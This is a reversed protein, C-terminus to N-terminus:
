HGSPTDHDHDDIDTDWGLGIHRVHHSDHPHLNGTTSWRLADQLQDNLGDGDADMTNPLLAPTPDPDHDDPIDAPPPEDGGTAASPVLPQPPPAPPEALPEMNVLILSDDVAGDQTDMTDPDIELQFGFDDGPNPQGDVTVVLPLGSGAASTTALSGPAYGSVPGAHDSIGPILAAYQFRGKAPWSGVGYRAGRAEITQGNGLSIAIHAHPPKGGNPDGSFSMLVAGPTNIGDEVSILTGSDRLQQYQYWAGDEIHVGAQAASWQVLESCDFASPNPDDLRTEVGFVYKDGTQALACDLFKHLADPSRGTSVPVLPAPGDHPTEPAGTSDGGDDLPVGYETGARADPDDLPVGFDKGHGGSGPTGPPPPDSPAGPPTDPPKTPPTGPPPTAPQTVVVVADSGDPTGGGRTDTGGASLPHGYGATGTWVGHGTGDGYAAAAAEAKDRFRLYRASLGGHTVTWPSVDTGGHSVQYAAKANQLPDYLDTGTLDPHARMNIQWLGRSDEGVTAHSRSDGGSEALAIATMTSAQDPNFGAQRAFAYIQEATYRPV